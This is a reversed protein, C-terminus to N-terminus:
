VGCQRIQVEKLVDSPLVHKQLLELFANRNKRGMRRGKQGEKEVEAAKKELHGRM